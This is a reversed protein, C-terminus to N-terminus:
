REAGVDTNFKIDGITKMSLRLVVALGKKFDRDQTNDNAFDLGIVVCEDEYTLGVDTRISGGNFGLNERHSFVVSWNRAFRSSLAVYLEETSNPVSPTGNSKNFIYSSSVRFLEPGVAASLESRRAVFSDKDFRFRYQLNVYANPTLDVHGVYDSFHGSLGSQPTFVSDAHFRYVQGFVASVTGISRNFAAYHLGYNVRAGTEVRDIGTFRQMSFLNTDDFELDLSDDNPISDSNGGIPSIVGMVIPELLQNFSLANSVFPMRWELSAEPVVRGAKGTYIDGKSPRVLDKVYYGDGRVGARLKYDGGYGDKFPLNWGLRLSGRTTDTNGDERQLVLGNGDVTWYGGISDPDGTYNYTLLPLVTPVSSTGIASAIRQRQFYYANASFYSNSGFREAFINSTLWTPAIFNYRRLYTRDTALRIDSGSRWYDSMDWRATADLHGRLDKKFDPDKAMLSGFVRVRAEQFDQRYEGIAGKGAETTLFPTLTADRDSDIHFYYPQKFSVGLNRGAGITPLLLGSKPGATPDPHALYPTYFLPVGGFEVWANNYYVMEAEPDYRVHGAKIQWLPTEGECSDCASYVARDLESTGDANRRFQRSAMRSKDSLLVRVETALGEKLDGAVQISEFFFVTGNADTLSVNGTATAVDKNRDYVIRDALLMRAGRQIEVFGSATVTNADQDYSLEDALLLTNSDGSDDVADVFAAQAPAGWSLAAAIALVSARALTSKFSRQAGAGATFLLPVM